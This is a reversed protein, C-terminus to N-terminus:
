CFTGFPGGGFYGRRGGGLGAQQSTWALFAVVGEALVYPTKDALWGRRREKPLLCYDYLLLIPPLVVAVSKTLLACLFAAVSGTYYLKGSRPGRDESRPQRYATYLLFSILFFVMALVNKRQAIWAASEVQVPHLLFIFAALFAWLRRGGLRFLLLYYLLGNLAHLLINSFIFGSARLGWLTYDAMYSVIQLPAYNGIYFTTFATRLHAPTFGRVAENQTVYKQDDWTLLFEHGLTQLYVAFTAALLALLPIIHPKLRNLM